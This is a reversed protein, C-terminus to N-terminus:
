AFALAPPRHDAFSRTEDHAIARDRLLISPFFVAAIRGECQCRFNGGEEGGGVDGFEGAVAVDGDIKAVHRRRSRCYRASSRRWRRRDRGAVQRRLINRGCRAARDRRRREGVCPKTGM